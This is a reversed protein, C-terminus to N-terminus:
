RAPAPTLAAAAKRWADSVRPGTVGAHSSHWTVAGNAVVFVQPSEHRVGLRSAIADSLQRDRQIVVEFVPAPLDGEVLGARAMHSVGCTQSHKFLIVPTTRSRDLAADLEAASTLPQFETVRSNYQPATARISAALGAMACGAIAGPVVSHDTVAPAARPM